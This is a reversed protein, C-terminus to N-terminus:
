FSLPRVFDRLLDALSDNVGEVTFPSLSVNGNVLVEYADTGPKPKIEIGRVWYYPSGNPDVRREVENVMRASTPKTIVLRTTKKIEHPFNLNLVDVGKPMGLQLVLNILRCTFGCVHQSDSKSGSSAFWEDSHVEQSVAIAPFGRIAAEIAGCVTGSTLISQYGVNAGSNIGSVFMDIDKAFYQAIVVSDAPMGDHAILSYGDMKSERTFRIPRNFTLAKGTASRQGDPVVVILDVQGKLSDALSLLGQSLPGDDNILCVKHM